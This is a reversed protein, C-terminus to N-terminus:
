NEWSIIYFRQTGEIDEKVKFGYNQLEQQREKVENFLSNVEYVKFYNHGIKATEILIFTLTDSKEAQAIKTIIKLDNAQVM